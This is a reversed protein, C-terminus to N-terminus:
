LDHPIYCLMSQQNKLRLNERLERVIVSYEEALTLILFQRMTEQGVKYRTALQLITSQHARFQSHIDEIYEYLRYAFRFKAM